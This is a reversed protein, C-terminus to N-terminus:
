KINDTTTAHRVGGSNGLNSNNLGEDQRVVIADASKKCNMAGDSAHNNRHSIGERKDPVRTLDGRTLVVAKRGHPQQM